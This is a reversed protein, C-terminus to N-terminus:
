TDGIPYQSKAFGVATLATAVSAAIGLRFYLGGLGYSEAWLGGLMGGLVGGVGIVMSYLTLGSARFAEPTIRHIIRMSAVHTAGFTLAHLVQAFLLWYWPPMAAFLFMRVAMAGSGVLLLAVEGYRQMLRRSSAILAIEAGVAVVWYLGKINDAVGLEDLYISFYTYYPGFLFRGMFSAFFFTLAFPHLYARLATLNLKPRAGKPRDDPMAVAFGAALLRFGVFGVFVPFLADASTVSSKKLIFLSALLPLIYGVSGWSRLRGYDGGKRSLHELTWADTLPIAASFFFTFAVTIACLIAFSNGDWIWYLPFTAAAGFYMVSLPIKRSRLADSIVGWILPVFTGLWAGIASLVGLEAKSVGRRQFYLSGYTGYIALGAFSLLYFAGFYWGEERKRSVETNTVNRSEAGSM